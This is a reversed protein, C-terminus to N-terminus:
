GSEPGGASSSTRSISGPRGSKPTTSCYTRSVGSPNRGRSPGSWRMGCIAQPPRPLYLIDGTQLDFYYGYEDIHSILALALEDLAVPLLRPSSNDM